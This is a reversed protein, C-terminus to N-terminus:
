VKLITSSDENLDRSWADLVHKGIVEQPINTNVDPRYTIYYVIIGKDDTIILTDIQNYIRVIQEVYKDLM